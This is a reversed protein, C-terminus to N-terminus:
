LKIRGTSKTRGHSVYQSQCSKSLLHYARCGHIGTGYHLVGDSGFEFGLHARSTCNGLLM